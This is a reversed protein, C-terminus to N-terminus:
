NVMKDLRALEQVLNEIARIEVEREYLSVVMKTGDPHISFGAIPNKSNWIEEPNGGDYPIKWLVSGNSFYIYDGKPSFAIMKYLLHMFPANLRSIEHLGEGDHSISMLHKEKESKQLDFLLTEGDSSKKLITMIRLGEDEFIVNEKGSKINHRIIQNNSIYFINEGNKDWEVSFSRTADRNVSLETAAASEMDILYIRGRYNEDKIRSKDYGYVLVSKEDPSLRATGRICAINDALRRSNGTETNNLILTGEQLGGPAFSYETYLMRKGDDFWVPDRMSGFLPQRSEFHLKGDNQDMPVIYSNYKRFEVSYFLNGVNNFGLPSIDGVNKLILQPEGSETLKSTNLAWLDSSGSRDSTFLMVNKGPLWGILRDNAPHEVLPLEEKGDISLLHIDFRLGDDKNRYDFGFYKPDPSLSLNPAYNGEFDKLNVIDGNELNVSALYWSESSMFRQVIVKKDDSYFLKPILEEPTKPKYIIRPQSNNVEMSRLDYEDDNNYWSYVIKKGDATLLNDDSWYYPGNWCGEHTLLKNERTELNRIGLDGTERAVYSLYKGDASISHFDGVEPGIWVPKITIEKSAEAIETGPGQELKELPLFNEMVWIEGIRASINYFAIHQGDPHVSLHETYNIELGLNEPEGGDIPIRWLSCKNQEPQRISNELPRIVFLIYKGDATWRLTSLHDSQKCKFLIRSEGGEAPIINLETGFKIFFSLWKGDPSCSLFFPNNNSGLFLERETGNEIERHMIQTHNNIKSRQGYFIAKGDPSWDHDGVARMNEQPSALPTLNGTQSDVQYLGWLNNNDQGAILISKGDPSWRPLEIQELKLKFEKEEGTEFSRICLIDGLTRRVYALYQGDPSYDPSQNYGEFSEVLKKSQNLIKGSEPDIEVSYIDRTFEGGFSYYFSGDSTFGLSAFQEIDPKVLKPTGQPKGNAVAILWASLTGTRDSAFLINEGDPAWGLLFDNAPHEILKIERNGDTSLLSIDDDQCDFVIYNGDPSFNMNKPWGKELIKLIRVSSDDVSVLVIQEAGDKRSFCALIQKGDPSWGYTRAWTVEENKYLILPKSGDIGIIRLEIGKENYWDYVIQKSDPSWRSYEAFEDSEDWTGKNTLRHKKGTGIELIGLDGTDWHVYSIYRGDPSPAGESYLEYDAWVQRIKFDKEEKGTLLNEKEAILLKSLRQKAIRVFEPQDGYNSVVQEYYEKAIKNGLKENSLGLHFLAEAGIARQGPYKKIIDKYILIAGELNGKVEEQYIATSLLEDPQKKQGFTIGTALPFYVLFILIRKM